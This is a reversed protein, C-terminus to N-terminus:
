YNVEKKKSHICDRRSITVTDKELTTVLFKHDEDPYLEEIKKYNNEDLLQKIEECNYQPVKDHLEAQDSVKYKNNSSIIQNKPLIIEREYREYQLRCILSHKM